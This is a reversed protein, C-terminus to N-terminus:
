ELVLAGETKLNRYRRHFKKIFHNKRKENKRTPIMSEDHVADIYLDAVIM